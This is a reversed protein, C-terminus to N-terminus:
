SVEAHYIFASLASFMFANSWRMYSIRNTYLRHKQYYFFGSPDQMNKITWTLVREALAMNDKLRGTNCLTLILQAPSHIDIPYTKNNYYKPTGDPLFFNNLYFKFGKEIAESFSNYGSIDQYASLAELNYGTHFSDIWRQVPLEGYYWSGDENQASVCALASQRAAELLETKGSYKYCLSLLKTGLLSANYVTDNGSLPSYSFLFGKEKPTRNLHYIVFDASLLAPELYKRNGTVEYADMLASACFSTAVVTPTGKPFLFLRRAQWDFNYGWSSAHPRLNSAQPSLDSRLSKLLEALFTIKTLLDHENGFENNGAQRTYQLLNCYGSLFLAIGKPNYQKAVGFLIRLNVPNRKFLQIWALRAFPSKKLFSVSQFFDSNLGDYPDWGRYEEQSCYRELLILADRASNVACIDQRSM